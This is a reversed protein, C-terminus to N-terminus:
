NVDKFSEQTKEFQEDHEELHKFNKNINGNAEMLNNMVRSIKDAMDNNVKTFKDQAWKKNTEL